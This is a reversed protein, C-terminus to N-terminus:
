KTIFKPLAKLAAIGIKAGNELTLDVEKNEEVANNISVIGAIIGILLGGLGYYLITKTKWSM